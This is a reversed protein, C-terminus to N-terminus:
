LLTGQEAPEWDTVTRREVAVSVVNWRDVAADVCAYAKAPDKFRYVTRTVPREVIVRYETM